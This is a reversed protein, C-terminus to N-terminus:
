SRHTPGTRGVIEAHIARVEDAVRGVGADEVARAAEAALAGAADPRALLRVVADAISAPDGPQAVAVAGVLPQPPPTTAVLPTGLPALEVLDAGDPQGPLVVAVDAAAVATWRTGLDPTALARLHTGLRAAAVAEALVQAQGGADLALLRTARSVARIRRAAQVVSARVLHEELSGVVTVLRTRPGVVSRRFAAVEDTAPVAAVTAPPLLVARRPDGLVRAADRQRGASWTIVRAARGLLWADLDHVLPHRAHAGVLSPLTAVLPLDFAESIGVAAQAVSWGHAHVLDVPYQRLVRTAAALLRADFALTWAVLDTPAIVPPAEGVQVLHVGHVTREGAGEPGAHTVLHVEDGSRALGRALAAVHRGEVGGDPPLDRALLLVRM